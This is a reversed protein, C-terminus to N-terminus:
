MDLIQQKKRDFEDQTLVGMDLLEKLKKLTDVQEQLSMPAAASSSREESTVGEGDTAADIAQRELRVQEMRQSFTSAKRRGNRRAGEDAEIGFISSAAKAVAQKKAARKVGRTIGKVSLDGSSLVSKAVNGVFSADISAAADSEREEKEDREAMEVLDRYYAADFHEGRGSMQDNIALEWVKIVRDNPDSQFAFDEQGGSHYVEIQKEGNSAEGVVIQDVQDFQYRTTGKYNGLMGLKVHIFAKNTLVLEDTYPAWFGHRVCSGRLMIKEGPELKVKQAAM